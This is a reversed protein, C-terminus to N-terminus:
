QPSQNEEKIYVPQPKIMAKVLTSNEINSFSQAQIIKRVLDHSEEILNDKELQQQKLSYGKQTSQSSNLLYVISVLVIISLLTFILMYVSKKIEISLPTKTPITKGRRKIIEETLM